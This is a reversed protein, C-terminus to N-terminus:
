PEVDHQNGGRHDVASAIEEQMEETENAVTDEADDACGSVFVGALMLVIILILWKKTM